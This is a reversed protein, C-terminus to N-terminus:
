KDTTKMNFNYYSSPIDGVIVNELLVVQNQITSELTHYSNLMVVNTEIDLYIRHITQNVGSSLFESRINTKIDGSPSVHIKIKPGFGSLFSVGTLAGMSIRINSNDKEELKNQVNLAIESTVQNIKLVNATIMQIKNNEDREITFFTDYNYKNIIKTTEENTIRTAIAHAENKCLREFIPNVFNLIATCTYIAIITVMFVPIIKKIKLNIKKNGKNCNFIKINFRKRSYIKYNNPQYQM